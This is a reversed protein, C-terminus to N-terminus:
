VEQAPNGWVTAKERVPRVVVSGAGVKADKGVRVGAGIIAGSGVFTHSALKARAGIISGAGLYVADELEAQQEIQTGSHIFCHSGIRSAAGINVGAGILNGHGIVLDSPLQASRHIANVPMKKYKKIVMQTFEERESRDELAIFVEADQTAKRIFVDDDVMAMVLVENIEKNVEEEEETLLGYVLVNNQVFINLATRALGGTGFIMVPKDM